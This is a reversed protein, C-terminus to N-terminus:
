RSTLNPSTGPKKAAKFMGLKRIVRYLSEVCRTYGSKRLRHWLEVLGLNPNRRRMDCILKLESETHANAHIHPRRSQPRLSELSGDYRARWFYSYSRSKNYKRSARQVGYKEAYRM